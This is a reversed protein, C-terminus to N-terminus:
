VLAEQSLAQEQLTGFGPADNTEPSTLLPPSLAQPIPGSNQKSNLQPFRTACNDFVYEIQLISLGQTKKGSKATLKWKVTFFIM